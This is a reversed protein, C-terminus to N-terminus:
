EGHLAALNRLADPMGPALKLAREFADRSPGTQHMAHLVVGLDNQLIPDEPDLRMADVFVKLAAAHDGAAALRKGEIRRRLSERRRTADAWAPALRVASDLHAAAAAADGLRDMVRALYLRAVLM